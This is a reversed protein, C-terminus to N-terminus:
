DALEIEAQALRRHLWNMAGYVPLMLATNLLASPLVIRILSDTWSIPWGMVQLLSLCVLHYVPTAILATLPIFALHTRFISKEGLSALFGIVLLALTSVGFPAGSFVDLGLGGFFGWISGGKLGYLLSGSIVVLLMLNPKVGAIALHPMATTQVLSVGIL